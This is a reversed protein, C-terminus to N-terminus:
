PKDGPQKFSQFLHPRAPQRASLPSALEDQRVQSQLEFFAPTSVPTAVPALTQLLEHTRAQLASRELGQLMVVFDAGPWTTKADNARNAIPFGESAEVAGWHACVIQGKDVLGELASGAQTSFRAPDSRLHMTGLLRASSQGCSGSLTCPLRMFDRLESRMRASWPTPHAFMERYQPTALADISALWYCTFYRPPQAPPGADDHSRYRRAEIFGPLGVREPVHELTHWTDYEPQLQASSISNWLALFGQARTPTM